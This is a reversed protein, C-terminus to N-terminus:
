LLDRIPAGESHRKGFRKVAVNAAFCLAFLRCVPPQGPGLLERGSSIRGGHRLESEHGPVSQERMFRIHAVEAASAARLGEHIAPHGASGSLSGATM